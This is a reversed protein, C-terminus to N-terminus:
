KNQIVIPKIANVIIYSRGKGIRTWNRCEPDTHVGQKRGVMELERDDGALEHRGVSDPHRM